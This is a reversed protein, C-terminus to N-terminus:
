GEFGLFFELHLWDRFRVPGAPNWACDREAKANTALPRLSWSLSQADPRALWALPGLLGLGITGWQSRKMEAQIDTGAQVSSLTM